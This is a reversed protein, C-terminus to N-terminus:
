IYQMNRESAVSIHAKKAVFKAFIDRHASAEKNNSSKM